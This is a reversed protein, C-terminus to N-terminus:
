GICNINVNTCTCNTQDYTCAYVTGPNCGETYNPNCEVFNCTVSCAKGACTLAPCTWATAGGRIADMEGGLKSITEKNLSLKKTLKKKM